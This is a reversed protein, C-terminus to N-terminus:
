DKNHAAKLEKELIALQDKLAASLARLREARQSVEDLQAQLANAQRQLISGQVWLVVCALVLTAAMAWPLWRPLSTPPPSPRGTTEPM